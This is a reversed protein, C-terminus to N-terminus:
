RQVKKGHTVGHRQKRLWEECESLRYLRGLHPMGRAVYRQLTRLSCLLFTAAESKTLLRDPTSLNEILAENDETDSKTAISLNSM